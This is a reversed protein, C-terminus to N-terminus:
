NEPFWRALEVAVGDEAVPKTIADAVELVEAVAQGMAVGHGAWRLMELDNRGDGIALVEDATCGLEGVVHDLGSAKSVGLPNIDLWATWGVVYETGHLGLRTVMEDFDEVTASPDRVIVRTVAALGMAAIPTVTSIGGLEGPPFPESVLYGGHTAEVAIRVSPYATTIAAVYDRADFEERFVERLPPYRMVQAGNAAVLWCPDAPDALGLLEAVALMSHPSRGSALVIHTGVEAVSRIAGRVRESLLAADDSAGDIWQLLTGDIDLAVVKPQWGIPKHL